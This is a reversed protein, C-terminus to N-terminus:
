ELRKRATQLEEMFAEDAATERKQLRAENQMKLWALIPHSMYSLVFLHVLFVGALLIAGSIAIGGMRFILLPLLIVLAAFHLVVALRHRQVFAELEEIKLKEGQRLERLYRLERYFFGMLMLVSCLPLGLSIFLEM